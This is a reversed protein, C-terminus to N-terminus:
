GLFSKNGAVHVLAARTAHQDTEEKQDAENIERITGVLYSVVNQVLRHHKEMLRTFSERALVLTTTAETAIATHRYRTGDLLSLLGVSRGPGATFLVHDKKWAELRGRVVLYLKRGPAGEEFVTDGKDFSVKELLIALAALDETRVSGFIKTRSLVEARDIITMIEEEDIETPIPVDFAGVLWHKEFSVGPIKNPALPPDRGKVRRALTAIWFDDDECLETLLDDPERRSVDFRGKAAAVVESITADPNLLPDLLRRHRTRLVTDILEFGHERDRSYGSGLAVFSAYLDELPYDMGLARFAREAAEDCRQRITRLLFEMRSDRDENERGALDNLAVAWRYAVRIEHKIVSDMEDRDLNVLGERDRRLKNLTKLAEFRSYPDLRPIMSVLREVTKPEADPHFLRFLTLRTVFPTDEVEICDLLERHIKNGFKRLADIAAHRDEPEALRNLIDSLLEVDGSTGISVLAAHRVVPDDDLLKRVIERSEDTPESIDGLLQAAALRVSVRPSGALKRIQDIGAAIEDKGGHHVLCSIAALRVDEKDHLLFCKLHEQRSSSAWLCLFRIAERRVSIAPDNLMPMIHKQLDYSGIQTLIAIADTRVKSSDHSLLGVLDDRVKLPPDIQLLALAYLVEEISGASLTARLEKTTEVGLHPHIVHDVDVDRVGILRKISNRFERRMRLTQYLWLAICALVLFSIDRIPWGLVNVFVILLLGGVGTGGRYAVLDILPKVKIKLESPVPLFLLERTSQDLSYRLGGETAKALAVTLLVPVALVGISAVLLGLPLIMMAIGVGFRRLVFSTFFLQILMSVVNLTVFFWGYFETKENEGHIYLDAARNFQWDVMTSVVITLSLLTAITRLHSSRRVRQLADRSVDEALRGSVGEQRWRMYPFLRWVIAMCIGLIPAAVLLLNRNGLTHAFVGAIASGTVGGFILGVGIPGFLRKAQATSFLLNNVLWFQSVLVVPYIDSWIYFTSSSWVEEDRLWWQFVLLNMALFAFTGLLLARKGIRDVYRSYVLTVVVVFAATLVYFYPLNEAGVHHVFASNSVPKIIYYSTMVLYGYLAMLGAPLYEDPRVDILQSL